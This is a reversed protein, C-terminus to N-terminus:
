ALALAKGALLTAIFGGPAQPISAPESRFFAFAAGRYRRLEGAALGVAHTEAGSAAVWDELAKRIQWDYVEPPSALALCAAYTAGPLLEGAMQLDAGGLGRLVPAVAGQLFRVYQPNTGFDELASLDPLVFYFALDFGSSSSDEIAGGGLVHALTLLAAANEFISERAERSIEPTLALLDLHLLRSTM